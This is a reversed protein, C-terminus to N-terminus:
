DATEGAFSPMMQEAFNRLADVGGGKAIAGGFLGFKM